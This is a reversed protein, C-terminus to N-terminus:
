EAHDQADLEAQMTSYSKNERLATFAYHEVKDKCPEMTNKKDSNTSVTAWIKGLCAHDLKNKHM